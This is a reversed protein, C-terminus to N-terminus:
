RLNLAVVFMLEDRLEFLRQQLSELKDRSWVMTLATKIANIKSQEMRDHSDHLADLLEQGADACEAAL